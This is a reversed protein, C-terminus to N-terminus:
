VALMVTALFARGFIEVLGGADREHINYNTLFVRTFYFATTLPLEFFIFGGLWNSIQAEYM